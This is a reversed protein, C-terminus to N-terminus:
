RNHTADWNIAQHLQGDAAQMLRVSQARHGDYDRQDSNLQGILSSLRAEVNIINRASGNEGRDWAAAAPQTFAAGAGFMAVSLAAAGISQKLNFRM